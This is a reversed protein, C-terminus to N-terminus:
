TNDPPLPAREPLPMGAHWGEDALRRLLAAVEARAAVGHVPLVLVDGDRARALVTRAADVEPLVCEMRENPLGLRRLEDALIGPVEGPARGRLYGELDKLVV